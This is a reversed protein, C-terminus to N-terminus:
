DKMAEPNKVWTKKRYKYAEMKECKSGPNMQFKNKCITHHISKIEVRELHSELQSLMM